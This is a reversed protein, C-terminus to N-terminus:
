AWARVIAFLGFFQVAGAIDHGVIPTIVSKSKELWYAYAVGALFSVVMEGLAIEVPKTVFSATFVAYIVAAVIGAGNMSYGRLHVRGPMAVSLYTVLLSRYLVEEAVGAFGGQYGLWGWGTQAVGDRPVTHDILNPWYDALSMLAGIVLGWLIAPGVYSKEDPAHLGYDGPALWKMAVIVILALVLEAIGVAYDRGLHDALPPVLRTYHRSTEVLESALWVIGIGILVAFFIPLFRLRFPAEATM